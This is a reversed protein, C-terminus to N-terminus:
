ARRGPCARARRQRLAADAVVVDEQRREDGDDGHQVRHQAAPEAAEHGRQAVIRDAGRAAADVDHAGLRDREADRAREAAEGAREVAGEALEDAGLEAQQLLGPQHQRHDDDAAHARERAREGARDQDIEAGLPHAAEAVHLDDDEGQEHDHERAVKRAAEPPEDGLRSCRPRRTLRSDTSCRDTCKPPTAATSSTLKSRRAPSIRPRIPGLPEPLVVTSLRSEPKRAGREPRTCISPTSMVPKGAFRSACRPTSRINWIVRTKERMDANSLRSVAPSARPM